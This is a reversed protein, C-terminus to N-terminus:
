ANVPSWIQQKQLHLWICIQLQLYAYLHCVSWQLYANKDSLSGKFAKIKMKGKIYGGKLIPILLNSNNKGTPIRSLNRVGSLSTVALSLSLATNVTSSDWSLMRTRQNLFSWRRCVLLHTEISSSPFVWEMVNLFREISSVEWILTSAIPNLESALSVTSPLHKKKFKIKNCEIWWFNIYYRSHLIKWTNYQM